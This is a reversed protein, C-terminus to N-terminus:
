RYRVARLPYHVTHRGPLGAASRALRRPDGPGVIHDHGGTGILLSSEVLQNATPLRGLVLEIRDHQDTGLGVGRRHCQYARNDIPEPPYFADVLERGCEARRSLHHRIDYAVCPDARLTDIEAQDRTGGEVDAVAVQPCGALALLGLLTDALGRRSALVPDHQELRAARVESRERWVTPELHAPEVAEADVRRDGRIGRGAPRDERNLDDLEIRGGAVPHVVCLWRGARLRVRGLVLPLAGYRCQAAGAPEWRLERSVIM